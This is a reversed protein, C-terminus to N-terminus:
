LILKLMHSLHHHDSTCYNCKEGALMLTDLDGQYIDHEFDVVAVHGEINMITGTSSPDLTGWGDAPASVLPSLKM